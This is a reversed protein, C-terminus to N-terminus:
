EQFDNKNFWLFVAGFFGKLLEKLSKMITIGLEKM